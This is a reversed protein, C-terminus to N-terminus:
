AAAAAAADWNTVTVIAAFVAILQPVDPLDAVADGRWASTRKIHGIPRGNLLLSIESRWISARQFDYVQTSTQLRWRKRGVGTATAIVTEDRGLLTFRTGWASAKIHHERRDLTLTGSMGWGTPKWTALSRGRSSVSYGRKWTSIRKIELMSVLSDHAHM